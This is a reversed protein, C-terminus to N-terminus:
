DQADNEKKSLFAIIIDPPLSASGVRPGHKGDGRYTEGSVLSQLTSM